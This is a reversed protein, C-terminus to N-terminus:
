LIKSFDFNVNEKINNKYKKQLTAITKEEIEIGANTLEEIFSDVNGNNEFEEVLFYWPQEEMLSTGHKIDLATEKIKRIFTKAQKKLEKQTIGIKEALEKTDHNIILDLCKAYYGTLAVGEKVAILNQLTTELMGVYSEDTFEWNNYTKNKKASKIYKNEEGEYAKCLEELDLTETHGEQAIDCLFTSPRFQKIDEESTTKGKDFLYVFIQDGDTDGQLLTELVGTTVYACGYPAIGTVRQICIHNLIPHRVTEINIEEESLKAVIEKNNLKDYKGGTLFNIVNRPLHIEDNKIDATLAQLACGKEERFMYSYMDKSAISKVYENQIAIAYNIAKKLNAIGKTTDKLWFMIEYAINFMRSVQHHIIENNIIGLNVLAIYRTEKPTPIELYRFKNLEAIYPKMAEREEETNDIFKNGSKIATIFKYLQKNVLMASLLKNMYPITLTNNSDKTEVGNQELKKVQEESITLSLFEAVEQGKQYTKNEIKIEFM